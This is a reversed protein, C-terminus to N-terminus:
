FFHDAFRFIYVYIHSLSLLLLSFFHFFILRLSRHALILVDLMLVISAESLTSASLIQLFSLWFYDLIFIFSFACVCSSLSSWIHYIYICICTHGQIRVDVCMYVCLVKLCICILNRFVLLFSFFISLSLLSHHPPPVTM